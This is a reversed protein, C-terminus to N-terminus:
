TAARSRGKSDRHLARVLAKGSAKGDASHELYNWEQRELLLRVYKAVSLALRSVHWVDRILVKSSPDLGITAHALVKNRYHRIRALADTQGNLISWRTKLARTFRPIEGVTGARYGVAKEWRKEKEILFAQFSPETIGQVLEELSADDPWTSKGCLACVRLVMLQLQDFLITNLAQSSEGELRLRKGAENIGHFVGLTQALNEAFHHIIQAKDSYRKYLESTPPPPNAAKAGM